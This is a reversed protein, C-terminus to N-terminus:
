KVQSVQGSSWFGGQHESGSKLLEPGGPPSDTQGPPSCPGGTHTNIVWDQGIRQLGLSHLRGGINKIVSCQSQQESGGSEGAERTLICAQSIIANAAVHISRSIM